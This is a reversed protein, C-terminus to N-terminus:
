IDEYERDMDYLKAADMPDLGKYRDTLMDSDKKLGIPMRSADMKSGYHVLWYEHACLPCTMQNDAYQHGKPCTKPM